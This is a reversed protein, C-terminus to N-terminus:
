CVLVTITDDVALLTASRVRSLFKSFLHLINTERLIQSSLSNESLYPTSGTGRTDGTKKTGPSSDKRISHPSTMFFNPENKGHIRPM